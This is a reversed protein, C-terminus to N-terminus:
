GGYNFGAVRVKYTTQAILSEVRVEPEKSETELNMVDRPDDCDDVQRCVEM